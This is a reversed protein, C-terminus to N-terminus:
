SAISAAPSSAARAMEYGLELGAAREDLRGARADRDRGLIAASDRVPTPSSSSAPTPATPSSGSRTTAAPADRRAPGAVAERAGLRNERSMSGSTDIVFTLAAPPRADDAVDRAKVGIRLLTEDPALFPTPGGDAHIAFPTTRPRPTARTSTTSSSRSASARRIPCTATTSSGAPSRTPPPTSTSGSRRSTTSRPTSSRTRAPIPSRSGTTRRPAAAFSPAPECCFPHAPPAGAATPRLRGTPRQTRGLHQLRRRARGRPGLSLLPKRM